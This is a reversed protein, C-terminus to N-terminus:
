LCWARTRTFPPSVIALVRVKLHHAAVCCRANVIFYKHQFNELVVHVQISIFPVAKWETALHDLLDIHKKQLTYKVTSYINLIAELMCLWHSTFAHM